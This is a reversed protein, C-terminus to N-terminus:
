LLSSRKSDTSHHDVTLQDVDPMTFMFDDSTLPQQPAGRRVAGQDLEPQPSSSISQLQNAVISLYQMNKGAEALDKEVESIRRQSDYLDGMSKHILKQVDGVAQKVNGAFAPM